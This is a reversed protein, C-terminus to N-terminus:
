HDSKKIATQVGYGSCITGDFLKRKLDFSYTISQELDKFSYTCLYPSVERFCEEFNDSHYFQKIEDKSVSDVGKQVCASLISKVMDIIHHTKIEKEQETHNEM